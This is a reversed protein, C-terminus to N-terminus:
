NKRMFGKAFGRIYQVIPSISHWCYPIVRISAGQHNEAHFRHLKIPWYPQGVDDHGEAVLGDEHSILALPRGCMLALHALGNDTAVVLRSRLMGAITNDLYRNGYTDNWAADCNIVRYSSDPHGAAFVSLGEGTLFNTLEQWHKWNKDSGYQRWRPCVAVDFSDPMGKVAQYPQPIFYKRPAKQDPEHFIIDADINREQWLRKALNLRDPEPRARRDKDPRYDVYEYDCDPYLSEMGDEIMAIKPTPIANVQPAHFMCIFGFEARYPLIVQLSM